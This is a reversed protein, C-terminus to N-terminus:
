GQRHVSGTRGLGAMRRAFAADVMLEPLFRLVWPLWRAVPTIRYRLRPRRASAARAILEAVAEAPTNQRGFRSEWHANLARHMAAYAPDVGIRHAEQMQTASARFATDIPGPEILVVRIGFPRLERRLTVSLADLAHKSACYAGMLPLAVHAVVSSINIICGAGRARMAPLCARTVAVVGLVNTELQGRWGEVPIEEVAGVQGYGANNVLVDVAGWRQQIEGVVQEVASAETVDLRCAILRGDAAEPLAALEAVSEARRATAYVTFGDRCLRVAASRGIGSSCGTILAVRPRSAPANAM